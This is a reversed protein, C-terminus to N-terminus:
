KSHDVMYDVAAKLEDETCAFCLGKAPMGKFGNLASAYLGDKGKEAVRPAWAAADGFKPAGAAGTSHCSTCASKFVEEGSKAAGGAGGAAAASACPEGQKCVQGVPATNQAAKDEAFVAGAVLLGIGMALGTVAKIVTNM